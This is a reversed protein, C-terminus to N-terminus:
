LLLATAAAIVIGAAGGLRAAREATLAPRWELGRGAVTIRDDPIRAVRLRDVARKADRYSSFCRVTIRESMPEPKWDTRRQTGVAATQGM